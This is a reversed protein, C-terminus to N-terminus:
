LPRRDADRDDEEDDDRRCRNVEIAAESGMRQNAFVMSEARNFFAHAAKRKLSFEFGRHM